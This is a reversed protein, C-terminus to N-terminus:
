SSDTHIESTGSPDDGDAPAGPLDPVQEPPLVEPPEESEVLPRPVSVGDPFSPVLNSDGQPSAWDEEAQQPIIDSQSQTDSGWIVPIDQQVYVPVYTSYSSFGYGGYWPYYSDYLGLASYHGYGHHLGHSDFGHRNRSGHALAHGVGHGLSHAFGGGHRDGAAHGVAGHGVGGHGSFRGHGFSRQTGLGHGSTGHRFSAGRTHAIGVRGSHGTHSGFGHTSGRRAHGLRSRTSRVHGSRRTHGRSRGTSGFHSGRRSSIHSSGRVHSHSRGHSGVRGHGGGHGGGHHGGHQGFATPSLILSLGVIWAVVRFAGLFSPHAM